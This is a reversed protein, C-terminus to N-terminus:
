KFCATEHFWGIKPPMEHFTGKVDTYVSVYENSVATRPCKLLMKPYLKVISVM